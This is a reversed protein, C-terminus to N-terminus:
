MDDDTVQSIAKQDNWKKGCQPCFRLYRGDSDWGCKCIGEHHYEWWMILRFFVALGLIILALILWGM